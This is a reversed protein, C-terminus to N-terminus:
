TRGRESAIIRGDSGTINLYSDTSTFFAHDLPIPRPHEAARCVMGNFAGRLASM